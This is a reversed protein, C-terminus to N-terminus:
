YYISHDLFVSLVLFLQEWIRFREFEPVLKVFELNREMVSSKEM